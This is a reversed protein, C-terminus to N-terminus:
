VAALWGMAGREALKRQHPHFMYRGRDPLTFELIAREAPGLTVVDTHEDPALGTGSRYVDFTQAHLHFSAVPEDMLMNVVYLRIPKGVPAKIAYKAYFGALGNWGYLDSHGDGDTDFGGLVLVLEHAPPRGGPPDVIMAGYLGNAIHEDDPTLDCHYPHVGFPAATVTYTAEGGPRVPEWGDSDVQHRGHFHLNHPDTGRNRLTISLTDGENARLIPGPLMGGFTWADFTHDAAVAVRQNLVDLALERVAPGTPDPPPPYTAADLGLPGINAPPAV